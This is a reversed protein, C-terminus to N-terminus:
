RTRGRVARDDGVVSGRRAGSRRRGRDGSRRGCVLRGTPRWWRMRGTGERADNLALTPAGRSARRATISAAMVSVTVVLVFTTCLAALSGAYPTRDAVVGGDRMLNLVGPGAQSAIVVGLGAAPVAVGVTEAGVLQRVRRPTAGLVRLLAIEESRQAVVISLTSAVSFLVIVMSWGGVVGGIIRLTEADDASGVDFSTEFMTAFTGMLAAGLLVSVFTAVLAVGRHRLSAFALTANM